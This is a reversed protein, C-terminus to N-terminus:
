VAYVQRSRLIRRLHRCPKTTCQQKRMVAMSTPWILWHQCRKRSSFGTGRAHLLRLSEQTLQEAGAYDAQVLKLEAWIALAVGHWYPDGVEDFLRAGAAWADESETLLGLFGLTFGREWRTDVALAELRQLTSRLLATAQPLNLPSQFFAFSCAFRALLRAVTAAEDRATAAGATAEWSRLLAVARGMLEAKERHSLQPDKYHFLFLTIAAAPPFTPAHHRLQWEWALRINERDAVITDLAAKLRPGTIQSELEALLTVYYAGHRDHAARALAPEQALKEAGFQRLLEHITYRGQEDRQLFSKDM